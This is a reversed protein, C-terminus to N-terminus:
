ALHEALAEALLAAQVEPRTWRRGYEWGARAIAALRDPRAVAEVVVEALDAGSPEYLLAIEGDAWRRPEPVLAHRSVDESLVVRGRAWGDAHRITLYGYGAPAFVITADDMERLSRRRLRAQEAEDLEWYADRRFAVRDPPLAGRLSALLRGRHHRDRTDSPAAAWGGELWFGAFHVDRRAGALDPPRRRRPVLPPYPLAVPHAPGGRVPLQPGAVVTVAEALRHVLSTFGPDGRWARAPDDWSDFRLYVATPVTAAEARATVAAFEAPGWRWTPMPLMEVDPRGSTPEFAREVAAPPWWEPFAGAEPLAM